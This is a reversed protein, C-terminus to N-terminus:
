LFVGHAVDDVKNSSLNVLLLDPGYRIWRYGPPPPELGLRFFGDYYYTSNLLAAPVVQGRYWRRYRHGPPYIYPPGHIRGKWGGHWYWQSATPQHWPNSRRYPLQSPPSRPRGSPAGASPLQSARPPGAGGSQALSANTGASALAAAIMLSATM